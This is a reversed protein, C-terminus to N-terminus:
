EIYKKFKDEFQKQYNGIEGTEDMTILPLIGTNAYGECIEYIKTGDDLTNLNSDKESLAVSIMAWMGTDSLSSTPLNNAKGGSPIPTKSGIDKGLAMAMLFIDLGTKEYFFSQRKNRAGEKGKDSYFDSIRTDKKNYAIYKPWKGRITGIDAGDKSLRIEGRNDEHM